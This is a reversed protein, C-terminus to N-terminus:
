LRFGLFEGGVEPLVTPGPALRDAAPPEPGRLGRLLRSHDVCDPLSQCWLDLALSDDGTDLVPDDPARAAQGGGQDSPRDVDRDTPREGPKKKEAIITSQTPGSRVM